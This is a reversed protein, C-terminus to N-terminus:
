VQFSECLFSFWLCSSFVVRLIPSFTQLCHLWCPILRWFKCVAWETHYWFCAFLETFLHTTSRFLCKEFPMCIALLCMFLLGINNTILSVCILVECWKSYGGYFFFFFVVLLLQQLTNSSLAGRKTASPIYIPVAMISFLISTRRLLYFYFQWIVCCDWELSFCLEFLYM